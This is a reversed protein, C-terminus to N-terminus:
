DLIREKRVVLGRLFFIKSTAANYGESRYTYTNDYELRFYMDGRMVRHKADPRTELTLSERQEMATPTGAIRLVQQATMGHRIRGYVTLSMGRPKTAKSSRKRPQPDPTSEAEATPQSKRAREMMERLRKATHEDPPETKLSRRHAGGKGPPRDGFHVNGEKDTWQFIEVALTAVVPAASGLLIAVYFLGVAGARM